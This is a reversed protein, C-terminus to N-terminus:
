NLFRECEEKTLPHFGASALERGVYARVTTMASLARINEQYERVSMSILKERQTKGPKSDPDVIRGSPTITPAAGMITKFGDPDRRAFDRAWNMQQTDHPNLKHEKLMEAVLAETEKNKKEDELATLRAALDNFREVPVFGVHGKLKMIDKLMMEVPTDRSVGLQDAVAARIASESMPQVGSTKAPEPNAIPAKDHNVVPANAPNSNETATMMMESGHATQRSARIETKAHEANVKKVVEDPAEAEDYLTQLLVAAGKLIDEIAPHEPLALGWTKLKNALENLHHDMKTYDQPMMNLVATMRESAALLERQNKIRPKNTLALSHLRVVRRKEDLIFVPSLYRYQEERIERFAKDSWRVAALLGTKPVYTLGTIWGAAPADLGANGRVITSHEYDIPLDVGQNEFEEIVLQASEADMRIPDGSSIPTEGEALILVNHPPEGAGSLRIATALFEITKMNTLTFSGHTM